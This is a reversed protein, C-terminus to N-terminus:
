QPDPSLGSCCQFVIATKFNERNSFGGACCQFSMRKSSMGEDTGDTM